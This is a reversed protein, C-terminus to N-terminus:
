IPQHHGPCQRLYGMGLRHRGNQIALTDPTKVDPLKVFRQALADALIRQICARSAPTSTSYRKRLLHPCTGFITSSGPPM